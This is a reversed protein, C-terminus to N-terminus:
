HCQRRLGSSANSTLNETEIFAVFAKKHHSAMSTQSSSPSPFGVPCDNEDGHFCQPHFGDGQANMDGFTTLDYRSNYVRLTDLLFHSPGDENNGFVAHEISVDMDLDEENDCIASEIQTNRRLQWKFKGSAPDEGYSFTLRIPSSAMAQTIIFSSSGCAVTENEWELGAVLKTIPGSRHTAVKPQAPPYRRRGRHHCFIQRPEEGDFEEPNPQFVFSMTFGNSVPFLETNQLDLLAYPNEFSLAKNQTTSADEIECCVVEFDIDSNATLAPTSEDEGFVFLTGEEMEVPADFVYSAIEELSAGAGTIEDIFLYNLFFQSTSGGNSAAGMTLQVNSLLSLTDTQKSATVPPGLAIQREGDLSIPQKPQHHRRAM